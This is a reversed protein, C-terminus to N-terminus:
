PSLWRCSESEKLPKPILVARISQNRSSIPIKMKNFTLILVRGSWGIWETWPRKQCGNYRNSTMGVQMILKLCRTRTNKMKWGRSSVELPLWWMYPRYASPVCGVPICEQKHNFISKGIHCWELIHTLVKQDVLFLGFFNRCPPLRFNFSEPWWNFYIYVRLFTAPRTCVTKFTKRAQLTGQTDGIAVPTM